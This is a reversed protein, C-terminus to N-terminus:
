GHLEVLHRAALWHRPDDSAMLDLAVAAAPALQRGRAQGGVMPDVVLPWILEDVVQLLVPGLPDAVLAVVDPLQESLSRPLYLVAESRDDVLPEGYDVAAAIGSVAVLEHDSLFALDGRGLHGRHPQARKRYRGVDDLDVSGALIEEWARRGGLPRGRRNAQHRRAQVARKPVAWANGFRVGPLDGAVVLQRVREVSVRLASAADALPLLDQDVAFTYIPISWSKYGPDGSDPLVPRGTVGSLYGGEVVPLPLPTCPSPTSM